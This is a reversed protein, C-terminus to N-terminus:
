FDKRGTSNEFCLSVYRTISKKHFKESFHKNQTCNKRLKASLLPPAPRKIKLSKTGVKKIIGSDPPQTM